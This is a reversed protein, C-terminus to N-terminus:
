SCPYKQSMIGKWFNKRLLASAPITNLFRKKRANIYSVGGRTRSYKPDSHTGSGTKQLSIASIVLLM